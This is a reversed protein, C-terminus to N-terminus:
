PIQIARKARVLADYALGSFVGKGRLDKLKGKRIIENFENIVEVCWELYEVKISNEGNVRSDDVFPMYKHGDKVDDFTDITFTDVNDLVANSWLLKAGEVVTRGLFSPFRAKLNEEYNIPIWVLNDANCAEQTCMYIDKLQDEWIVELTNAEPCLKNFANIVARTRQEKQTGKMAVSKQEQRNPYARIMDETQTITKNFFSLLEPDATAIDKSFPLLMTGDINALHDIDDIIEMQGVHPRCKALLEIAEREPYIITVESPTAEITEGDKDLLLTDGQDLWINWLKKDFIAYRM